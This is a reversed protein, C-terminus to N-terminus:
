FQFRNEYGEERCLSRLKKRIGDTIDKWDSDDGYEQKHMSALAIDIKNGAWDGHELWGGRPSGSAFHGILSYLMQTFHSPLTIVYQRKTYNRILWNDGKAKSPMFDNLDFTLWPKLLDSARLNMLAKSRRPNSRHWRNSRAGPSTDLILSAFDYPACSLHRGLKVNDTDSPEDIDDDVDNPLIKRYYAKEEDTFMGNPVTETHDGLFIVRCGAWSKQKVEDFIMRYRIPHTLEWIAVCTVSFFILDLYDELEEAIAFLLEPPLLLLTTATFDNASSNAKGKRARSVVTRFLYCSPIIPTTLLTITKDDNNHWFSEELTTQSKTNGKDINFVRWYEEM